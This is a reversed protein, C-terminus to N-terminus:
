PNTYWYHIDKLLMGSVQLTISSIKFNISLIATEGGRHTFLLLLISHFLTIENCLTRTLFLSLIKPFFFSTSCTARRIGYFTRHRFILQM